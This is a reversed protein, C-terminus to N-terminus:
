TAWVSFGAPPAYILTSNITHSANGPSSAPYFTGSLGSYDPNTGAAPNAGSKTFSNNVAFWLKGNDLDLMVGVVSGNTVATSTSTSGGSNYTFATAVGYSSAASGIYNSLSSGVQAIGTCGFIAATNVTIEFYWKGTSKSTAARVAQSAATATATRDSASLTISANKDSPNWAWSVSPISALRAILALGLPRNLM